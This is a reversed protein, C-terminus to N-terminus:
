RCPHNGGMQAAGWIPRWKHDSWGSDYGRKEDLYVEDLKAFIVRRDDRSMERPPTESPTSVPKIPTVVNLVLMKKEKNACSQCLDWQANAGIEWGKQEFKKTIINPPLLGGSFFSRASQVHRVQPM